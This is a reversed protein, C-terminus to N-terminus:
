KRREFKRKLAIFLLGLIPIGVLREGLYTSELQFFSAISNRITSPYTKTIFDVFNYKISPTNYLWNSLLNFSLGYLWDIIPYSFIIFVALIVLRGYSEGYLSLHKYIGLPSLNRKLWLIIERLIKNKFRTNVDLRRMEMEGIFFDGAEAFRLNSEYNRRLRRYIQAVAGYTVFEEKGILKEDVVISRGKIKNWTEDL